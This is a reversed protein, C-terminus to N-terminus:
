QKEPFLEVIKRASLFNAMAERGEREEERWRGERFKVGRSREEDGEEEGRGM